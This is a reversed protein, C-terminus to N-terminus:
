NNDNNIRCRELVNKIKEQILGLACGGTNKDDNFPCDECVIGVCSIELVSKLSLTEKKTLTAITIIEM